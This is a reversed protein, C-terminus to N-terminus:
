RESGVRILLSATTATLSHEQKEGKTNAEHTARSAQTSDGQTRAHSGDTRAQDTDVAASPLWDLCGQGHRVSAKELLFRERSSSMKALRAPAQCRRLSRVSRVLPVPPRHLHAKQPAQVLCSCEELPTASDVIRLAPLGSPSLGCRLTRYLLSRHTIISQCTRSGGRCARSFYEVISITAPISM